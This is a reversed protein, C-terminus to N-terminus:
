RGNGGTFGNRVSVAHEQPVSGPAATAPAECGRNPAPVRITDPSLGRVCRTWMMHYAAELYGVFRPVDFLPARARAARLREQVAKLEAPHTALNVALREYAAPNDVALEPLGAAAVLVAGNRAQPTDGRVSIVPVGAWLALIGATGATITFTDLWLDALRHRWRASMLEPPSFVLRHPDVGCLQAERRLSDRVHEEGV